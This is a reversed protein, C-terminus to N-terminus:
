RQIQLAEYKDLLKPFESDRLSATSRWMQRVKSAHASWFSQSFVLYAESHSLAPSRAIIGTNQEAHQLLYHAGSECFTAAAEVRAKALLDLAAVSSNTFVMPMHHKELLSIISYGQPVAFPKDPVVNFETGSWQLVSDRRTFLCYLSSSIALSTDVSEGKTPYVGLNARNANYSAIIVDAKGATIDNLCRKWPARYFVLLVEGLQEDMKQLIDIFIGPNADPPLPGTGMFFPELQQEEYCLRVQVPSDASVYTAALLSALLCISIFTIIPKRSVVNM